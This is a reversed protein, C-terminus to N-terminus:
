WERGNGENDQAVSSIWKSQEGLLHKVCKASDPECHVHRSFREDQVIDPM